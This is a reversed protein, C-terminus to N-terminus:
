NISLNTFTLTRTAEDFVLGNREYYDDMIYSTVNVFTPPPQAYTSLFVFNGEESQEIDSSSSNASDEASGHHNASSPNPAVHGNGNRVVSRNNIVTSTRDSVNNSDSNEVASDRDYHRLPAVLMVPKCQEQEYRDAVRRGKTYSKQHRERSFVGRRRRKMGRTAKENESCKTPRSLDDRFPTRLYVDSVRNTSVYKCDSGCDASKCSNHGPM